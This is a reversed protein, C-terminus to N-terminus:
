LQKNMEMNIGWIPRDNSNDNFRYDTIVPTWDYLTLLSSLDGGLRM